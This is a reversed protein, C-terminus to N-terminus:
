ERMGVIAGRLKPGVFPVPKPYREFDMHTSVELVDLLYRVNFHGKTPLGPLEVLAGESTVGTARTSIDTGRLYCACGDKDGFLRLKKCAAILGPPIPKLNSGDWNVALATVIDPWNLNLLQSKVWRGDKYHFTINNDSIQLHSLEQDIRIVEDIASSPVNVVHPFPTGLWYEAMVINNTAYASQGAFLIGMSWPRSADVGIFNQLSNFADLISDHPAVVVGEPYTEPVDQLPICPISTKFNGSRIVVSNGDLTLSIVDECVDLAKTFLGAHPAFDFGIDVPASLAVTGNYGTVRKDKIRFHTLGPVFDRRAVSRQVFKLADLM